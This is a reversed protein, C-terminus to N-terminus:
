EEQLENPFYVDFDVIVVRVSHEVVRRLIFKASPNTKRVQLGALIFKTFTESTARIRSEGLLIGGESAVDGKVKVNSPREVLNRDRNVGLDNASTTAIKRLLSPRMALGGQIFAARLQLYDVSTSAGFPGISLRNTLNCANPLYGDDGVQEFGRNNLLFRRFHSARLLKDGRLDNTLFRTGPIRHVNLSIDSLVKTLHEERCLGFKIHVPSSGNLPGIPTIM